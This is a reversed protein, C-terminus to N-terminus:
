NKKKGKPSEEKKSYDLKWDLPDNGSRKIVNLIYAKCDERGQKSTYDKDRGIFVIDGAAVRADRLKGGFSASAPLQIEPGAIPTGTKDAYVGVAVETEKNYKDNLLRPPNLKTIM